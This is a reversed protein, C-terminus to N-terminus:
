YRIKSFDISYSSNSPVCYFLDIKKDSKKLANVIDDVKDYNFRMGLYVAELCPVYVCDAKTGCILRWESEHAWQISKVILSYEGYMDKPRFNSYNIKCFSKKLEAEYINNDNLSCINYKLCLGEHQNAYYTWMPISNNMESFCAIKYNFLPRQIDQGLFKLIQKLINKLPLKLYFSAISSFQKVTTYNSNLLKKIEQCAKLLHEDKDLGINKCIKSLYDIDYEKESLQDDSLTFSSDFPDNLSNATSIHVNNTIIEDIAYDINSRYRYLPNEIILDSKRFFNIEQQEFLYEMGKEHMADNVIM